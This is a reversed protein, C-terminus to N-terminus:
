ANVTQVNGTHQKYVTTLFGGGLGMSQICVVGGCFFAAIAAEVASCSTMLIDRFVRFDKM